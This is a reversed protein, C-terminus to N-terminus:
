LGPLKVASSFSSFKLRKGKVRIGYPVAMHNRYFSIVHTSRMACRISTLPFKGLSFSLLTKLGSSLIQWRATRLIDIFWFIPWAYTTIIMSGNSCIFYNRPAQMLVIRTWTCCLISFSLLLSWIFSFFPDCPHFGIVPSGWVGLPDFTYM